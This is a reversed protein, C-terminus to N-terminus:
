SKIYIFLKKKIGVCMLDSTTAPLYRSSYIQMAEEWNNVHRSRIKTCDKLLPLLQM